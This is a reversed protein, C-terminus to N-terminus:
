APKSLFPHDAAVTGASSAIVSSSSEESIQILKYTTEESGHTGKMNAAAIPLAHNVFTDMETAVTGVLKASVGLAFLVRGAVDFTCNAASHVLRTIMPEKMGAADALQKQTWGKHDLNQIIIEALDMRLEFGRGEGSNRADNLINRLDQTTTM